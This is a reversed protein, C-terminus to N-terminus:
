EAVVGRSFVQRVFSVYTELVPSEFVHDKDQPQLTLLFIYFIASLVILFTLLFTIFDLSSDLALWLTSPSDTSQCKVQVSPPTDQQQRQQEQQKDKSPSPHVPQVRKWADKDQNKSASKKGKRKGPSSVPSSSHTQPSHQQSQPSPLAGGSAPDAPTNMFARMMDKTNTTTKPSNGSNAPPVGATSIFVIKEDLPQQMNNNNDNRLFGKVVKRASDQQSSNKNKGEPTKAGMDKIISKTFKQSGHQKM